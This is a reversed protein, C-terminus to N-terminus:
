AGRTEIWACVGLGIVIGTVTVCLFWWGFVMVGTVASYLVAALGLFAVMLVKGM